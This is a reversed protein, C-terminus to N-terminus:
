VGMEPVQPHLGVELAAPRKPDLGDDVVGTIEPHRPSQFMQLFQEAFGTVHVTAHDISETDALATDKRAWGKLPGRSGGELTDM